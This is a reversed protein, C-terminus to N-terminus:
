FRSRATGAGHDAVRIEGCSGVSVGEGKSEFVQVDEGM